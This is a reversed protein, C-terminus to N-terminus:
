AAEEVEFEKAQQEVAARAKRWCRWAPESDDDPRFSLPKGGAWVEPLAGYTNEILSLTKDGILAAVQADPIGQSRNLTVFYARLGHSTRPPLELKTCLAKLKHSLCERTTHCEPHQGPFYWPSDPYVEDHWSRHEAIVELLDDHLPVFPFVGRKSRRVYLYNGEIWGPNSKAKADVRLSMLENLRCGTMAGFLFIWAAVQSKSWFLERALRNLENGDAPQCERSHRIKAPDRLTGRGVIRNVPILGRLVAFNLINSLCSLEIEARRPSGRQAAYEHCMPINIDAISISAFFKKLNRSQTYQEDMYDM